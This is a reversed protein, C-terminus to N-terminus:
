DVAEIQSVDDIVLEYHVGCVVNALLPMSGTIQGTVRITKGHFHKEPAHIGLRKLQKLARTTMQLAFQTQTFNVREVSHLSIDGPAHGPIWGSDSTNGAQIKSAPNVRRVVFQVTAGKRNFIAARDASSSHMVEEPTYVKKAVQSILSTKKLLKDTAGESGGTKDAPQAIALSGCTLAALGLTLMIRQLIM